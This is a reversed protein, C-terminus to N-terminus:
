MMPPSRLSSIDDSTVQEQSLTTIFEPYGPTGMEPIDLGAVEVQPSVRNGHLWRGILLFAASALVLNWAICVGGAILQAFLQGLEHRGYFLGTVNGAVGNYGDGFSGDAFLGVALLGWLGSIAHVSIAGVPDDIGKRELKLVGLITICGAVLGIFVAAAPSVFACGATISVLGGLMGNCMLSPDPKGFTNWLYCTAALTGAGSALMTNVAILGIRDSAGALTSGANFGFWCFALLFTGFMVMPMHHGFIPRPNGEDDYKGIRPGIQLVGALALLGGQLHVVSSGAFDVAGHGLGFYQGLQSLWGGGWMWCGYVPYIFAAVILSFATFSKFKWREALTGTPITVATDMFVMMYLFWVMAGPTRHVGGLLFFGSFGLIGWHKGFLPISLMNHLAHVHSLGIASPGGPGDELGNVGGCMFAYGCVFFAAMALSYVLFNMAMTHCANKARCMGTEILAFGAQMFMVLFGALLTWVYNLSTATLEVKLALPDAPAVILNSSAPNSQALVCQAVGLAILGFALWRLPPRISRLVGRSWPLRQM